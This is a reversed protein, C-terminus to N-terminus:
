FRRNKLNEINNIFEETDFFYSLYINKLDKINKITVVLIIYEDLNTEFEYYVKNLKFSLNKPLAFFTSYSKDKKTLLIFSNIKTKELPLQIDKIKEIKKFKEFIDLYEQHDYIVNVLKSAKEYNGFEFCEFIESCVKFFKFIINCDDSQISKINEGSILDYIEIANTWCNQLKIRIQFEIKKNELSKDNGIYKYIRHISRYGSNKPNEIYNKGKDIVEVFNKFKFSNLIANYGYLDEINNFIIRTGAIDNMRNLKTSNKIKRIISDRRKIRSITTHFKDFKIKDIDDNFLNIIDFHLKRFNTFENKEEETLFKNQKLKENIKKLSM